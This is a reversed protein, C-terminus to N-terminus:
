FLESHALTFCRPRPRLRLAWPAHVKRLGHHSAQCQVALLLIPEALLEAVVVARVEVQDERVRVPEGNFGSVIDADM